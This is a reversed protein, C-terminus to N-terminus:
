HYLRNKIAIQDNYALQIIQHIKEIAVRDVRAGIPLQLTTQSAKMTNGLKTLSADVQYNSFPEVQHIPPNFYRRALVNEARLVHWIEDRSLGFESEDVRIVCYTYNSKSVGQPSVIKFGPISRLLDIYYDHLKKNNLRNNEFDDLSMLAIAAQIESLRATFTKSIKVNRPSKFDYYIMARLKDALEDDNTAIAGGETATIIKTAHFSFVEARGFNGVKRDNIECGVAQASDFYLQVGYQHALLEIQEVEAAGGWLNVGLIGSIANRSLIHEVDDLAMHQSDIDIDCFVPTIKNWYLSQATAIFTWSPVIVNGTLGMAEALMILGLTANSVCIVNKVQFFESLRAELQKILPGQERQSTYHRRDFIDRLASEYRSYEPMYFQGVPVPETFYPTGGLISLEDIKGKRM